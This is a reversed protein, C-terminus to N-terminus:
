LSRDTKERLQKKYQTEDFHIGIENGNCFLKDIAKGSSFEGVNYFNSTTLVYYTSSM